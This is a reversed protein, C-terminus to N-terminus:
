RSFFAAFGLAFGLASLLVSLRLMAGEEDTTRISFKLRM